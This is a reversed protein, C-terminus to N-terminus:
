QATKENAHDGEMPWGDARKFWFGLPCSNMEYVEQNAEGCFLAQRRFSALDCLHFLCGGSFSPSSPHFATKNGYEELAAETWTRLNMGAIWMEGPDKGKVPPWRKAQPFQGQWWRWSEAGGARDADLAVLILQSKDLLGAAQHDPRTQANGLAVLNVLDGAEQHVLIADLESELIMSVPNGRGLIMARTDSGRFLYYRPDGDSKPRRIRVRLVRDEQCLPITMGRPFWLKKPKGDDKLVEEFGWGKTIQWRDEPLWGLSFAKITEPKLGRKETLFNLIQRGRQAWLTSISRDILERAKAQWIDSPMSTERPQWTHRSSGKEQPFSSAGIERGLFQCADRFTMKRFDRLYQIEDGSRGCMRCWWKGSEGQEPWTRFRDKGGCFPCPSAYEGGHTSGVRKPSFGDAHLLELIAM